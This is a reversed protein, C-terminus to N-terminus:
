MGTRAAPSGVAVLVRGPYDRRSSLVVGARAAAEDLADLRVPVTMVLVNRSALDRLRAADLPAVVGQLMPIGATAALFGPDLGLFEVPRDCYWAVAPDHLDVTAALRNAEGSRFLM